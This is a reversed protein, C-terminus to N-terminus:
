VGSKNSMRQYKMARLVYQLTGVSVALRKAIEKQTLGLQQLRIVEDVPCRPHNLLNVWRRRGFGLVSTIKRITGQSLSLSTAIHEISKGEALLKAVDESQARPHQLYNLRSPFNKRARAPIGDLREGTSAELAKVVRRVVQKTVGLEQAIEVFTKNERRLTRVADTSVVPHKLYDMRKPQPRLGMTHVVQKVIYKSLKLKRSIEAM